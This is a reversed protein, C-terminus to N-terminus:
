EKKSIGLRAAEAAIADTVLRKAYVAMSVDHFAAVRRLLSHEAPGFELRVYRVVKEGKEAAQMAPDGKKKRGMADEPGDPFDIGASM